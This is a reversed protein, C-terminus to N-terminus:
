LLINNGTETLEPVAVTRLDIMAKFRNSEHGEGSIDSFAYIFNQPCSVSIEVGGAEVLFSNLKIVIDWYIAEVSANM